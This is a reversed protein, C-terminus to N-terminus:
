CEKKKMKVSINSSYNHLQDMDLLITTTNKDFKM